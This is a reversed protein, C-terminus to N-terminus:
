LDGKVSGSPDNWSAERAKLICGPFVGHRVTKSYQQFGTSYAEAGFCYENLGGGLWGMAPAADATLPDAPIAPMRPFPRGMRAHVARALLVATHSGM